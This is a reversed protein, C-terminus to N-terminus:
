FSLKDISCPIRDSSESGLDDTIRFHTFRGKHSKWKWRRIAFPGRQQPLSMAASLALRPEVHSSLPKVFRFAFDIWSEKLRWAAYVANDLVKQSRHRSFRLGMEILQSIDCMNSIHTVAPLAACRCHDTVQVTRKQPREM